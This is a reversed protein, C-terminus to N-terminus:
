VSRCFTCDQRVAYLGSNAQLSQVKERYSRSPTWVELGCRVARDVWSTRLGHAGSAASPTYSLAAFSRKSALGGAEDTIGERGFSRPNVAAGEHPVLGSEM